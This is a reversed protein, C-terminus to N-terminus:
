YKRVLKCYKLNVWGSPTRAWDGNLEYTDFRTGNKYVKIRGYSTGPGKRVNLGSSTNVVYLGLAFKSKPKEEVKPASAKEPSITYALSIWGAGSKLRGWGSQEDVITYVEGSKVTTNIGYSTGPGTRVNLVATNIKVTYSAKKDVVVTESQKEDLYSKVLNLFREWGLDLTKHPCYKGSFDQHKYVRDIGWNREKLQLALYQAALNEAETFKEEDPNTSHCIEMAIMKRNGRGNRGDGANWTNRDFPIGIVVREDDVAIHYSVKNNNGLMYSIESMASAKNATNHVAFGEAEMEYPCKIAYKSEPCVVKTIQM